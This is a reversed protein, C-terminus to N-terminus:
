KENKYDGKLQSIILLIFPLSFLTVLTFRDLVTRITQVYQIYNDLLLGILLILSACPLLLAKLKNLKLTSNILAADIYLYISFRTISAIVWIILFMSETNGVFRGVYILRALIQYPYSIITVSPYDFAMIYVANFVSLVITVVCLGMISAKKYDNYNKVEQFLVSFFIIEGYITSYMFGNKTIDKIGPGLIPFLYGLNLDKFILAIYIVVSVVVLPLTLWAVRGIANLGLLAVILCSGVLSFYLVLIPTRNYFMATLIGVYSRTNFASFSLLEIFLILGIIFGIYKGTLKYTINIINQNRYRRLLKLLALLSIFPIIASIMTMIWSANMAVKFIYTPTADTIEIAISFFIVAFLERVGLKRRNDNLVVDIEM